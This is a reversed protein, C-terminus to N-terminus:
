TSITTLTCPKEFQPDSGSTQHTGPQARGGARAGSLGWIPARQDGRSAAGPRWLGNVNIADCVLVIQSHGGLVVKLAVMTWGEESQLSREIKKKLAEM